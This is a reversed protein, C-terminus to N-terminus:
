TYYVKAKQAISNKLRSVTTPSTKMAAAIQNGNMKPKGNIGMSHEFVFLEDPTLDYRLLGFAMKDQSGELEVPDADGFGSAFLDKRTERQLRGVQAESWGLREALELTNPPRGLEQDLESEAARLEGIKYVRGESIRATNLHNSVWRPGKKLKHGVWTGLAAGRNPDYTQVADVFHKTFEAHVVAPVIDINNGAYRNSQSRIMPRFATLLPKLDETKRGNQDWQRWLDQDRSQRLRVDDKPASIKRM